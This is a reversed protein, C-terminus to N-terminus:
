LIWDTAFKQPYIPFVVLSRRLSSPFAIVYLQAKDCFLIYIKTAIDNARWINCDKDKFKAYLVENSQLEILTEQLSADVDAVNVEFPITVWAPIEIMLLDSFRPQMDQQMSELYESYLVLDEDNVDNSTSALKEFACHRANDQYM